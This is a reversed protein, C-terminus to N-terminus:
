IATSSQRTSQGDSRDANSHLVCSRLLQLRRSLSRPTLDCSSPDPASRRNDGTTWEVIKDGSNSWIPGEFTGNGSWNSGDARTLLPAPEPRRASWTASAGSASASSRVVDTSASSCSQAGELGPGVTARTDRRRRRNLDSPRPRLCWRDRPQARARDHVVRESADAICLPPRVQQANGYSRTPGLSFYVFPMGSGHLLRALDTDIGAADEVQLTLASCSSLPRVILWILQRQDAPIGDSFGDLAIMARHQSITAAHRQYFALRTAANYRGYPTTKTMWYLTPLGPRLDRVDFALTWGPPATLM